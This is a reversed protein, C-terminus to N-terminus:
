QRDLKNDLLILKAYYDSNNSHNIFLCSCDEHKKGSRVLIHSEKVRKIRWAGRSSSFIIEEELLVM